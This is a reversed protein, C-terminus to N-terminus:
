RAGFSLVTATRIAPDTQGEIPAYTPRNNMRQTPRDPPCLAADDTLRDTRRDTIGETLPHISPTESSDTPRERKPDARWEAPQATWFLLLVLVGWRHRTTTCVRLVHM